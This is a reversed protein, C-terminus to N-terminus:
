TMFAYTPTSTCTWTKKVEAGTPPSHGTEARVANCEPLIRWYGHPGLSTPGWFPDSYYVSTITTSRVPAPVRVRRDDLGYGTAIGVASGRNTINTNKGCCQLILNTGMCLMPCCKVARVQVVNGPSIRGSINMTNSVHTCEAPPKLCRRPTRRGNRAHPSARERYPSTGVQVNAGIRGHSSSVPDFTASAPRTPSGRVSPTSPACTHQSESITAGTVLISEAFLRGRTDFCWAFSKVSVPQRFVNRAVPWSGAAEVARCL